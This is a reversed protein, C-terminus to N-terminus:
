ASIRPVAAISNDYSYEGFYKEEAAKRAAVADEFSDYRGLYHGRGDVQINAQWKNRSKDYSVGTVGSTNSSKLRMNTNNQSRNVIRLNCKRNDTPDHNIHDVIDSAGANMILRHLQLGSKKRAPKKRLNTLIYGESLCWCYEKIRPFDEEDFFFPVGKQTYGVMYGKAHEYRNTLRRKEGRTCRCTRTNGSQLNNARVLIERGCDCRCLWQIMRGSKGIYDPGRQIVTLKGYRRGTLDIMRMVRELYFISVPM